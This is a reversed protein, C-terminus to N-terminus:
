EMEMRGFKDYKARGSAILDRDALWARTAGWGLLQAARGYTLPGRERITALLTDPDTM